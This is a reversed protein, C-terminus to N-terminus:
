RRALRALRPEGNSAPLAPAVRTLRLMRQAAGITGRRTAPVASCRGSPDQWWAWCRLRVLDCDRTRMPLFPSRCPSPLLSPFQEPACSREGASQRMENLRRTRSFNGTAVDSVPLASFLGANRVGDSRLRSTLSTEAIVWHAAIRRNTLYHRRGGIVGIRRPASRRDRSPVAICKEVWAASASSSSAACPACAWGGSGAPKTSAAATTSPSTTSM